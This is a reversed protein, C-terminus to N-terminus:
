TSHLSSVYTIIMYVTYLILILLIFRVIFVNVNNLKKRKERDQYRLYCILYFHMLFLCFSPPLYLNPPLCMTFVIMILLVFKVINKSISFQVLITHTIYLIGIFLYIFFTHNITSCSAKRWPSVHCLTKKILHPLADVLRM